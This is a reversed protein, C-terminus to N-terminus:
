AYGPKKLQLDDFTLSITWTKDELVSHFTLTEGTKSPLNSAKYYKTYTSDSLKYAGVAAFFQSDPNDTFM